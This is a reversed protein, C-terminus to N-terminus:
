KRNELVTIRNKIQEIENKLQVFEDGGNQLNNLNNVNDLLESPDKKLIMKEKQKINFNYVQSSNIDIISFSDTNVNSKKLEKYCKGAGHMITMAEYVKNSDYPKVLRYINKSM